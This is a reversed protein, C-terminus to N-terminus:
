EETDVLDEITEDDSVLDGHSVGYVSKIYEAFDTNTFLDKWLESNYEIDKRKYKVAELIEGTKRDVKCYSQTSIKNIYNGEVALDLLGSWRKIGENFSVNILIKSKEKVYRSKEVNIVFNYGNLETGDKDQQRGIIFLNDSALMTGQGGSVVKTPFMSNHAIIGSELEFHHENEVTIDAIRFPEVQKISVIKKNM